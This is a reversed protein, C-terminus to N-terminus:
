QEKVRRRRRRDQQAYDTNYVAEPAILAGSLPISQGIDMDLLSRLGTHGALRSDPGALSVPLIKEGVVKQIDDMAQQQGQPGQATLMRVLEQTEIPNADSRVYRRAAGITAANSIYQTGTLNTLIGGIMIGLDVDRRQPRLVGTAAQRLATFSNGTVAYTTNTLDILKSVSDQIQAAKAPGYVKALKEKLNDDRAINRALRLEGNNKKMWEVMERAVGENFGQVDAPNAAMMFFDVTDENTDQKMIERGAEYSRTYSKEDSFAQNLSRYTQGKATKGKLRRSLIGDVEKRVQTLLRIENRARPDSSKYASNIRQQVSKKFENLDRPTVQYVAPKRVKGTPTLVKPTSQSRDTPVKKKSARAQAIKEDTKRFYGFIERKLAREDAQSLGSNANDFIRDVMREIKPRQFMVNKNADFVEDYQPVLSQFFQASEREVADATRPVTTFLGNARAYQQPLLDAIEKQFQETTTGGAFNGQPPSGKTSGYQRMELYKTIEQANFASSPDSTIGMGTVLGGRSTDMLTSTDGLRTAEDLISTQYNPGESQSLIEGLKARASSKEGGGFFHTTVPGLLEQAGSLAAGGAAGLGAGEAVSEDKSRAYAGGEVGGLFANTVIRGFWSNGIFDAAKEGRKLSAVGKLSTNLGKAILGGPAFSGVIQGLVSAGRNEEIAKDINEEYLAAKQKNFMPDGMVLNSLANTAGMVAGPLAMSLNGGSGAEAGAAVNGANGLTAADAIGAGASQLGSYEKGEDRGFVEQGSQVFSFPNAAQLATKGLASWDTDAINRGADMVREGIGRSPANDVPLPARHQAKMESQESVELYKQPDFTAM